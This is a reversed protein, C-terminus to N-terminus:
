ADDLSVASDAQNLVISLAQRAAEVTINRAEVIMQAVREVAPGSAGAAVAVSRAHLAM